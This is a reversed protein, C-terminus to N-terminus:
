ERAKDNNRKFYDETIKHIIDHSNAALHCAIEEDFRMNQFSVYCDIYCHLLEHMLTERKKEYAVSDWLYIKQTEYCTLGFLSGKEDGCDDLKKMENQPLEIIEWDRDNM